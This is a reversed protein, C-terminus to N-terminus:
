FLFTWPIDGHAWSDRHFVRRLPAESSALRALQLLYTAFQNLFWGLGDFVIFGYLVVLFSNLVLWEIYEIGNWIM